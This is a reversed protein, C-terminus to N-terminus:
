SNNLPLFVKFESGSGTESEVEVRGGHLGIVERVFSLGLGTGPIETGPRHVRFFRDFINELDRKPIGLGSDKVSILIESERKTAKLSVEGGEPTFKIANSTLNLITTQIKAQDLELALKKDAEYTFSIGKSEAMPEIVNAVKSLIDVIRVEKLKLDVKGSDLISIDLLDRILAELRKTEEFIIELFEHKKEKELDDGKRLM